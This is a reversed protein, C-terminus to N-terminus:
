TSAIYHRTHTGEGGIIISSFFEGGGGPYIEKGTAVRTM